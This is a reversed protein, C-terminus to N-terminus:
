APLTITAVVKGESPFPGGFGIWVAWAPGAAGTSRPHHTVPFNCGGGDGVESIWTVTRNCPGYGFGSFTASYSLANKIKPVIYATYESVGCGADCPFVGGGCEFSLTRTGKSVAYTAAVPKTIVTRGAATATAPIKVTARVSLTVSGDSGGTALTVFHQKLKGDTPPSTLTGVGAHTWEWEVSADAPVAENFFGLVPVDTNQPLSAGTKPSIGLTFEQKFEVTARASGLHVAPATGVPEFWAELTITEPPSDADALTRAIYDCTANANSTSFTNKERTGTGLDPKYLDGYQASCKWDFRFSGKEVGFEDNDNDVIEAKIAVGVGLKDVKLPNPTLRINPKVVKLEWTEYLKSSAIDIGARGNNIWKLANDVIGLAKTAVGIGAYKLDDVHFDVAKGAATWRYSSAIKGTDGNGELFTLLKDGDAPNMKEYALFKLLLTLLGISFDSLAPLSLPKARGPVPVDVMVFLHDAVIDAFAGQVGYGPNGKPDRLKAVVAPITSTMLSFFQALLTVQLKKKFERPGLDDGAGSIKGGVWALFMPVLFDLVLTQLGLHETSFQEIDIKHLEELSLLQSAATPDFGLAPNGAMLVTVSYTTSKSGAPEITLTTEPTKSFALGSKDDAYIATTVSTIISAASSFAPLLPVEGSAVVSRAPDKVTEGAANVSSERKIVYWARRLKENQVYVTNVTEALIPEAGSAAVAPNITVGLAHAKPAATAFTHGAAALLAQTADVLAAQLTPGFAAVAYVDKAMEAAITDAFPVIAPSAAIEAVWQRGAEDFMPAGISCAVLATATSRADITTMTADVFGFLVPLRDSSYVTVFQLGGFAIPLSASGGTVVGFGGLLTHAALADGPVSVGAPLAVSVTVNSFTGKGAFARGADHLDAPVAGGGGGDDVTSADSGGGGCAILTLPSAIAVLSPLGLLLRRRQPDLRALRDATEIKM